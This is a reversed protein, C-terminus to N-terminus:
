WEGCGLWKPCLRADFHTMAAGFIDLWVFNASTQQSTGTRNLMAQTSAHALTEMNNNTHTHTHTHRQRQRQRVTRGDTPRDTQRDTQRRTQTRARKRTHRHPRTPTVTHSPTMLNNGFSRGALVLMALLSPDVPLAMRASLIKAM